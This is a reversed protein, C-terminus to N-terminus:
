SRTPSAASSCSWRWCATCSASGSTISLPLGSGGCIPGTAVQGHDLALVALIIAVVVLATVFDIPENFPIVSWSLRGLMLKGQVNSRFPGPRFAHFREPVAAAAGHRERHVRVTRVRGVSLRHPAREREAERARRLRQSRARDAASAAAAIWQAYDDASMARVDFHMDAFGDGSFNASLGRYTGPEDAQLYLQSTMGAMEYIQTGLEPVFFSNMVGSSTLRFHIPQGVPVALMNVSAIGEDPYIFLWKWDLAVVEIEVPNAEFGRIPLFPDLAHSGFWAIGGLFVIILAPISWVILELHGSFEWHPWYFARPNSHRFWWAFGAIAVIVPVVITLMIATADFLILREAAGVPGAPTSCALAARSRSRDSCLPSGPPLAAFLPKNEDGALVFATQGSRLITRRM